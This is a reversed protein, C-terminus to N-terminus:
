EEKKKKFLAVGMGGANAERGGECTLSSHFGRGWKEQAICFEKGESDQRGALIDAGVMTGVGLLCVAVAIFHILRYRARLIFWSLAMLM